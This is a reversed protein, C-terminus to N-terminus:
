YRWFIGIQGLCFYPQCDKAMNDIVAFRNMRLIFQIM